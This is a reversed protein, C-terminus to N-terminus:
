IFHCYYFRYEKIFIASRNFESISHFNYGRERVMVDHADRIMADVAFIIYGRNQEPLKKYTLFRETFTQYAM